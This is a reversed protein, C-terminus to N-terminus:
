RSVEREQRYLTDVTEAFMKEEDEALAKGTVQEFFSAFLETESLRRHDGMPGQLNNGTTLYPRDVRLVNPYVERLKGMVDLIAGTDQLTVMLYDERSEGNQPGSLIEQLYGKLCRVDRSPSLTIAESSVKGAADMEVLTISKRHDAESFSYKMLSGAYRIHEGGAAQSQHLHGLAVYNFPQFHAAEVTGSGGVSLPRESESGEGGAVFAHAAIVTRAQGPIQQVFHSLLAAMAQDHNQAEPVQLRDRVLAPEAYPLPCFYVPGFADPIVIPVPGRELQGVVHLGQRALLRQGFGLREPSDHNGAILIIPVRHDMLIRSLVEDLLRVAETPPVSRDYIDGAILVVDPHTDRVLRVFEDLIYVQDNTLHVGHFTRGLHWDSTHLIRMRKKGGRQNRFNVQGTYYNFEVGSLIDGKGWVFSVGSYIIM